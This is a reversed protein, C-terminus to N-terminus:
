QLSKGNVSVIECDTARRKCASLARKKAEKISSSGSRWAFDEGYKSKAFAKHNPKNLYRNWQLLGYEPLGKPPAVAEVKVIEPPVAWTPLGTQRLFDDVLPRWIEIGEKSFLNHGEEAFPGTQVLKAQGGSSTFEKHFDLALAPNFHGDNEAYVWLMPIRALKGFSKFAKLLRSRSCVEADIRSGHGGAFNIVANVGSSNNAALAVAGVGGTSKGILLIRKGDIKPKKKLAVVAANLDKATEGIAKEYNPTNCSDIGEVWDGESNGYGRRIVIASLYGRRAFETAQAIFNKPAVSTDSPSGHTIVALPFPGSGSPGVLLTELQYSLNDIKVTLMIPEVILEDENYTSSTFGAPSAVLGAFALVTAWITAISIRRTMVVHNAITRCYGNFVANTLSLARLFKARYNLLINQRKLYEM